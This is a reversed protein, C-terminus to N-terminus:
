RAQAAVLKADGAIPAVESRFRRITEVAMAKDLCAIKLVLSSVPVAATLEALKARCTETSGIIAAALGGEISVPVPARGPNSHERMKEYFRQLAPIAAERAAADTDAVCVNRLIVFDPGATAGAARYVDCLERMLGPSWVHGAMLGFGRRGAEAVTEKTASAIWVPLRKQLLRPYVTLGECASWRGKFTVNEEALLRLLLDMAERSRERAEDPDIHFHAYQTPFPGGRALGLNLRGHSLLDITALDEAVRIPNHLPLLIAASGIRIRQTVGALHAMLALTAGSQTFASFHHESVWLEDFGCAEAELALDIQREFAALNSEEGHEFNLFLGLRM